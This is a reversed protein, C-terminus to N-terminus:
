IKSATQQAAFIDTIWAMSMTVIEQEKFVDLFSAHTNSPINISAAAKQHPQLPVKDKSLRGHHSRIEAQMSRAVLMANQARQEALRANVLHEANAERDSTAQKTEVLTDNLESPIKRKQALQM